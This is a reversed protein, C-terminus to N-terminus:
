DATSRLTPRCVNMPTHREPFAFSCVLTLPSTELTGGAVVLLLITQPPYNLRAPATRRPRGAFNGRRLFKGHCLTYSRVHWGAPRLSELGRSLPGYGRYIISRTLLIEIWKAVAAGRLEGKTGTASGSGGAM